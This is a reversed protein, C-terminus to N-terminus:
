AVSSRLVWCFLPRASDGAPVNEPEMDLLRLDEPIQIWHEHKPLYEQTHELLCGDM